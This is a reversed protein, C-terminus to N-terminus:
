ADKKDETSRTEHTKSSAWKTWVLYAAASETLLGATLKIEERIRLVVEDIGLADIMHTWTLFQHEKDAQVQAKLLTNEYEVHNYYDYSEKVKGMTERIADKLENVLQSLESEDLDHHDTKLLGNWRKVDVKLM